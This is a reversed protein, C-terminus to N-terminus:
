RRDAHSCNTSIMRPNPDAAAALRRAPPGPPVNRGFRTNAAGDDTRVPRQLQRRRHAGLYRRPAPPDLATLSKDDNTDYPQTGAALRPNGEDPRAGGADPVAGVALPPRHGRDARRLPARRASTSPPAPARSCTPLARRREADRLPPIRDAYRWGPDSRTARRSLLRGPPSICRLQACWGGSHDTRRPPGATSCPRPTSSCDRCCPTSQTEGVVVGDGPRCPPSRAWARQSTIGDTVANLMEAVDLWTCGPRLELGYRGAIQEYLVAWNTLGAARLQDEPLDQGAPPQAPAVWVM